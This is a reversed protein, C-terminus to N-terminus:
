LVELQKALRKVETQVFELDKYTGNKFMCGPSMDGLHACDCWHGAEPHRVMLCPFGHAKFELRDPETLWPGVGCKKKDVRM